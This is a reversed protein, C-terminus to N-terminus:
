LEFTLGSKAELRPALLNNVHEGAIIARVGSAPPREIAGLDASSITGEDIVANFQNFALTASRQADGYNIPAIDGSEDIPTITGSDTADEYEPPVAKVGQKSKYKMPPKVAKLNLTQMISVLRNLEPIVDRILFFISEGEYKLSGQSLLIAGYGLPVIQIVVPTFGYIHPQEFALKGDIYVFNAVTDWVDIVKATKSTISPIIIKKGDVIRGNYEAEIAEKSRVMEYAGLGM